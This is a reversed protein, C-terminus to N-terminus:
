FARYDGGPFAMGPTPPHNVARVAALAQAATVPQASLPQVQPQENALPIIFDEEPEPM